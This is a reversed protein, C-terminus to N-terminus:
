NNEHRFVRCVVLLGFSTLHNCTCIAMDEDERVLRCGEESWAGYGEDLTQNWFVCM